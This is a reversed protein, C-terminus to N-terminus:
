ALDFAKLVVEADLEEDPALAAHLERLGPMQEEPACVLDQVQRFLRPIVQAREVPLEGPGDADAHHLAHRRIEGGAPDRAEALLVRVNGEAEPVTAPVIGDAALTDSRLQLWDDAADSVTIAISRTDATRGAISVTLSEYSAQRPLTSEDIASEDVTVVSVTWSGASSPRLENGDHCSSLATATLLAALSMTMLRKM